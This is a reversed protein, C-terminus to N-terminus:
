FNTSTEHIQELELQEQLSSDAKMNKQAQTTLYNIGEDTIIKSLKFGKIKYVNILGRCDLISPFEVGYDKELIKKVDDIEFFHVIPGSASPHQSIKNTM